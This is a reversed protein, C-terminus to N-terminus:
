IIQVIYPTFSTSNKPILFPIDSPPHIPCPMYLTYSIHSICKSSRPMPPFVIKFYIKSFYPLFTHIPNMQRLISVQPPNKHVHYHVETGHFTPFKKTVPPVMLKELVTTWPTLTNMQKVQVINQHSTMHFQICANLIHMFLASSHGQGKEKEMQWGMMAATNTHTIGHSWNTCVSNNDSNVCSNIHPDRIPISWCKTGPEMCTYYPNSNLLM